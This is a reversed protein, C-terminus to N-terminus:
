GEPLMLQQRGLYLSLSEGRYVTSVYEVVQFSATFTLGRVALVPDSTRLQLLAAEESTALRAAVEAETWTPTIGFQSRLVDFLSHQALDVKELGPCLRYPIYSWQVAVPQGDALRVRGLHMVLDAPGIKLITQLQEPVHILEQRIIRSSPHRGRSLM